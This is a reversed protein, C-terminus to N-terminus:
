EREGLRVEYVLAIACTQKRKVLKESTRSCRQDSDFGVLRKTGKTSWRARGCRPASDTVMGAPDPGMVSKVGSMGFLAGKM